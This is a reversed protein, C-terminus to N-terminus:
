KDEELAHEDCATYWWFEGRSKGPEGCTECIYSSLREARDIMGWIIENGRDTYFRLTGYKEKVQVAKVQFNQRDCEEQICACLKDILEFWGSGCEFGWCMATTRMDGHRDAFIKPYKYCLLDDLEQRM